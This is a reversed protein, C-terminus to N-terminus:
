GQGVPTHPDLAGQFVVEAGEPDFVRVVAFVDADTTESSLQLNLASPGTLELPAELPATKFTLGDGM